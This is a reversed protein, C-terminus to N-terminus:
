DLRLSRPGGSRVLRTQMTPRAEKLGPHAVPAYSTGLQKLKTRAEKVLDSLLSGRYIGKEAREVFTTLREETEVTGIVDELTLEDPLGASACVILQVVAYCVLRLHWTDQPGVVPLRNGHIVDNRRDYMWKVAPPNLDGGLLNYRLAIVTGKRTVRQGEPLLLIELATCLDVVKHDDTEHTVSHAIWYMSRLVRERINEPLDSLLELKLGDIGQRIYNGLDDVLPGFQRHFGLAKYRTTRGCNSAECPVLWVAEM